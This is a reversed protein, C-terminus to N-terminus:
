PSKPRGALERGLTLALAGAIIAVFLVAVLLNPLHAARAFAAGLVFAVLVASLIIADGAFFMYAAKVARTIANV